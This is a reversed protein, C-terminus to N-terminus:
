WRTALVCGGEFGLDLRYGPQVDGWQFVLRLPKAQGPQLTMSADGTVQIVQPTGTSSGTDSSSVEAEGIQISTVPNDQPVGLDISSVKVATGTANDITWVVANGDRQFGILRLRPCGASVVDTPAPAPTWTPPASPAVVM